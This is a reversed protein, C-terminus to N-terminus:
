TLSVGLEEVLPQGTQVSKTSSGEQAAPFFVTFIIIGILFLPVYLFCMFYCM